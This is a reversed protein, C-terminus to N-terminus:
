LNAEITFRVVMLIIFYAFLISFAQYDGKSYELLKLKSRNMDGRYCRSEMAITLDNARKFASVFLPVLIPIFSKIKTILGGEDFNAGRSIQANKIKIFEELITPIFRLAITIIMSLEHAPFNFRKLPELLSELGDAFDLTKTTFTLMSSAIILIILRFAMKFAYSLGGTTIKVFSIELLVEGYPNFFVNICATFLLLFGIKKVSNLIISTPIKALSLVVLLFLLSVFNGIISKSIFVFTVYCFMLIIKTRPDLKHIVSDAPYYQGFSINM